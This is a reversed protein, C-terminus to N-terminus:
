VVTDVSGPTATVRSSFGDHADDTNIDDIEIGLNQLKEVLLARSSQENRGAAPPIVATRNPSDYRIVFRLDREDSNCDVVFGLVAGHHDTCLRVAGIASWSGRSVRYPYVVWHDHTSRMQNFLPVAGDGVSHRDAPIAGDKLQEIIDDEASRHHSRESVPVGRQVVTSNSNHEGHSKTEVSPDKPKDGEGHERPHRRGFPSGFKGLLSEIFSQSSQLNKDLVLAVLRAAFSDSREVSRLTRVIRRVSGVDAALGSRLLAVVANKTAVDSELGLAAIQREVADISPELRFTLTQGSWIARVSVTLGQV